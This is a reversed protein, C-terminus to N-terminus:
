CTDTLHLTPDERKYKANAFEGYPTHWPLWDTDMHFVHGLWKLRHWKLIAQLRVMGCHRLIDVNPINDRQTIGLLKRLCHRHFSNLKCETITHSAWTESGSILSFLAHRM